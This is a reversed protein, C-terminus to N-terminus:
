TQFFVTFTTIYDQYHNSLSLVIVTIHTQTKNPITKPLERGNFSAQSLIHLFFFRTEGPQSIIIPLDPKLERGNGKQTEQAKQEKYLMLLLLARHLQWPSTAIFVRNWYKSIATAFSNVPVSSPLMSSRSNAKRFLYLRAVQQLWM